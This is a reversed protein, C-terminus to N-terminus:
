GEDNGLECCVATRYAAAAHGAKAAGQYLTFAEKNDPQLGLAGRGYCDALFFMSDMHQAAVLKKLIKHADFIYKERTKTRHKQDPLRAVLVDSAEILKRA